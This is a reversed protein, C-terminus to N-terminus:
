YVPQLTFMGKILRVTGDTTIHFSDVDKVVQLLTPLNDMMQKEEMCETCILDLSTAAM